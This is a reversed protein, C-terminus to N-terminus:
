PIFIFPVGDVVEKAVLNVDILRAITKAFEEKLLVVERALTAEAVRGNHDRLYRMIPKHEEGPKVDFHEEPKQIQVLYGRGSPANTESLGAAEIVDDLDRSSLNFRKMLEGRYAFGGKANLFRIVNEKRRATVLQFPAEEQPAIQVEGLAARLARRVLENRSIGESKAFQTAKELLENPLYLLVKQQQVKQYSM